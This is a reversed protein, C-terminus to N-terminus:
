QEYREVTAAPRVAAERPDLGASRRAERQHLLDYAQDLQVKLVDLREKEVGDLGGERAAQLYLEEEEAALANIRHHIDEDM